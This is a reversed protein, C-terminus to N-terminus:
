EGPSKVPPETEDAEDEEEIYGLAELQEREEDSMSQEWILPDVGFEARLTELTELFPDGITKNAKYVNDEQWRDAATYLENRGRKVGQRSRQYNHIFVWDDTTVRAKDDRGYRTETYAQAAGTESRLGRVADARSAGHLPGIEEDAPVGALDLLTPALDVSEAVGGIVHGAAVGPGHVIWPVHLTPEYLYRGHANGAWDPLDLGEGHDGVFVLLRDERGMAKLGADLRAVVDDLATVSADYRDVLPAKGISPLGLRALRMRQAGLPSHTDVVVLQGYLPGEVGRAQELWADVVDEGDVKNFDDRWLGTAEHYEDFGQHFGFVENTNPNATAGITAWGAGSFREALTTVDPHLGRDTNVEPGDSDIGLSRPYRGSVLAGIAPKTWPANTIMREFRAGGAALADIYPSTERENGYVHLRDARMTCAVVVVVTQPTKIAASPTPPPENDFLWCGALSLLLAFL